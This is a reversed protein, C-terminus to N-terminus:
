KITLTMNPVVINGNSGSYRQAYVEIYENNQLETTANLPLVVIDSAVTGRGYIKYESIVTGNKAVYIIYIGSAPVQFSISGVIQFIRKKKGAYRLRVTTPAADVSFRFLNSTIYTTSADGIKVINSPNLGNTFPVSTGFGVAYDIALGASANADTETPIGACRVSWNNTFNYGTYSGTTYKNIYGATNVGTFVVNEMVADGNITPNASVDFGTRGALVECFGGQKQILDFTGQVKEFTGQNSSFWAANDILLKGINEYIIGTTNSVYQVVSVFVLGFGTISGVNSSNAIITDRLLLNQTAAGSLNFIKGGGTVVITVNKITGGTAGDFLNGSTRVLKDENADLGVVYANNLDVPFNFIITGNIEYFTATNLLYKSGGGATLEDALDAVSKVLKYNTRVSSGNILPLWTSSGSSYYYLLKLDTDYVMLGDAPTTIAIRQATTMRPTLLGKSTSSVDLISSGDPSITGIGIQANGILTILIFILLLIKNNRLTNKINM